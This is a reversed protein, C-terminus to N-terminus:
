FPAVLYQYNNSFVGFLTNFLTTHNYMESRLPESQLSVLLIPKLELVGGDRVELAFLLANSLGNLLNVQFTFSERNLGTQTM